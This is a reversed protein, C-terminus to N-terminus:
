RPSYALTINALDTDIDISLDEIVGYGLETKVTKFLDIKELDGSQITIDYVMSKKISVVRNADSLPARQYEIDMGPMDYMYYRLLYLWSAAYNQIISNYQYIYEDDRLGSINILPVKGDKAIILAFGDNSFKGPSLLMLDIDSTFVGANIEETKDKQMYESTIDVDLDEFVESCDDMWRFEYRSSLEDKSFSIEGQGYLTPKKNFRDKKKTLDIQHSATSGYTGGKLFYSVHEIKLKNENDIYWYCKFCKNLMSMVQELSIEAKQAAQDYNGKLINSKPTIYIRSGSHLSDFELPSSKGYLFQSYEPLEEHKIAPDIKHLLAKIVAGIGFADRLTYEKRFLPELTDGSVQNGFFAWISTNAWSSRCVPMPKGSLINGIGVFNSTFYTKFDTMGFKTPYPVTKQSQIIDLAIIGICKKYNARDVAFDDYPINQLNYLTGGVNVQDVDALVRAFVEYDIVDEGLNFEDPANKFKEDFPNSYKTKLMKYEVGPTFKIGKTLSYCEKSTYILNRGSLAPNSSDADDPLNSPVGEGDYIEVYWVKKSLGKGSSDDRKGDSLHYTPTTASVTKQRLRIFGYNSGPWAKSDGSIAYSGNIAPIVNHFAYSSGFRSFHIESFAKNFAFFYKKKLADTDYIADKVEDEYYCGNAFTSITKGGKIYIQYAMRKTITLPSIEPSCKILDYTASYKDLINSYQDIPSLKLEIKKRCFDLKCDIKSFQNLSLVSNERIVAFILKSDIGKLNVYDYDEGFLNIRGDITERFFVQGNEKKFKKKITKYHPNCEKGVYIWIRDTLKEKDVPKMNSFDLLHKVNCIIYNTDHNLKVVQGEKINEYGLYTNNKDFMGIQFKTFRVDSPVMANVTKRDEGVHIPGVSYEGSSDSAVLEGTNVDLKSYNSMKYRVGSLILFQNKIPFTM